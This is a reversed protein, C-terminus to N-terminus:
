SDTFHVVEDAPDRFILHGREHQGVCWHEIVALLKAAELPYDGPTIDPTECIAEFTMAIQNVLLERCKAEYKAGADGVIKAIAAQHKAKAASPNPNM